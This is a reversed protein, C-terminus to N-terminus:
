YSHYVISPTVQTEGCHSYGSFREQANSLEGAAQQFWSSMVDELMQHVPNGPAVLIIQKTTSCYEVPLDETHWRYFDAPEVQLRPFITGEEYVERLRAVMQPTLKDITDVALLPDM